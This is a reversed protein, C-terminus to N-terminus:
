QIDIPMSITVSKQLILGFKAESWVATLCKDREDNKPSYEFDSPVSLDGNPRLRFTITFKTESAKKDKFCKLIGPGCSIFAKQVALHDINPPAIEGSGGVRLTRNSIKLEHAPHPGEVFKSQQALDSDCHNVSGFSSASSLILLLMCTTKM